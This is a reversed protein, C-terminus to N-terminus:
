MSTVLGVCVWGRRVWRRECVPAAGVGVVAGDERQVARRLLPMLSGGRVVGAGEGERVGGRRM